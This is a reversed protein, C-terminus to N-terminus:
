LEKELFNAINFQSYNEINITGIHFKFSKIPKNINNFPFTITYKNNSNFVKKTIIYKTDKGSYLGSTFNVEENSSSDIVIPKLLNEYIGDTHLSIPYGRVSGSPYIIGLKINKSNHPPFVRFNTILKKNPKYSIILCLLKYQTSYSLGINLSSLSLLKSRHNLNDFLSIIFKVPDNYFESIEYVFSDIGVDTLRELESIGAFQKLYPTELKSDDPILKNEIFYNLRKNAYEELKNDYLLNQESISKRYNNISKIFFCRLNKCNAYINSLKAYETYPFNNQLTSFILKIIKNNKKHYIEKILEDSLIIDGINRRIFWLKNSLSIKVNNNDITLNYQKNKFYIKEKRKAYMYNYEIDDSDSYIFNKIINSKKKKFDITFDYFYDIGQTYKMSISSNNYILSIKCNSDINKNLIYKKSSSIIDKINQENNVLRISKLINNKIKLFDKYLFDIILESNQIKAYPFLPIFLLLLIILIKLKKLVKM